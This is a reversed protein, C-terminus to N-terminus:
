IGVSVKLMSSVVAFSCDSKWVHPNYVRFQRWLSLGCRYDPVALIAALHRAGHPMWYCNRLPQNRNIALCHVRVINVRCFIYVFQPQLPSLAGNGGCVHLLKRIIRVALHFSRGTCEVYSVLGLM